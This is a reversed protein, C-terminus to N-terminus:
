LIRLMNNGRANQIKYYIKTYETSQLSDRQVPIYFLEINLSPFLSLPIPRNMEWGEADNKPVVDITICQLCVIFSYRNWEGKWQHQVSFLGNAMLSSCLLSIRWECHHARSGVLFFFVFSFRQSVSSHKAPNLSYVFM